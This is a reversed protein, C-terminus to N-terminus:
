HNELRTKLQGELDLARLRLADQLCQSLRADGAAYRGCQGQVGCLWDARLANRFYRQDPAQPLRQLSQFADDVRKNLASLEAASEMATEVQTTDLPCPKHRIRFAATPEVSMLLVAVAACGAAVFKWRMMKTVNKRSM